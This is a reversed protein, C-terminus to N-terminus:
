TSVIVDGMSGNTKTPRTTYHFNCGFFYHGPPGITFVQSKAGHKLTGSSWTLSGNITTGSPTFGSKNDFRSPFATPGFGSATHSAGSTDDNLFVLKSGHVVRIVQANGKVLPSYFYVAGFTPDTHEPHDFGVHIVLPTTTADIAAAQPAAVRTLPLASPAYGAGGSSGCGSLAFAAACLAPSLHKITM